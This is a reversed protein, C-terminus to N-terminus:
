ADRARAKDEKKGERGETTRALALAPEAVVVALSADTEVRSEVKCEVKFELIYWRVSSM